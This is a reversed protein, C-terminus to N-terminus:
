EYLIEAIFYIYNLIFIFLLFLSWIFIFLCETLLYKKENNKLLQNTWQLVPIKFLTIVLAHLYNNFFLYCVRNKNIKPWPDM